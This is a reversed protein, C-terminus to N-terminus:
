SANILSVMWECGAIASTLAVFLSGWGIILGAYFWQTWWRTNFRVDPSFKRGITTVLEYGFAKQEGTDRLQKELSMLYLKVTEIMEWSSNHARRAGINFIVSIVSLFIAVSALPRNALINGQTQQILFGAAAALSVNFLLSYRTMVLLQEFLHQIYAIGEEIEFKAWAEENSM